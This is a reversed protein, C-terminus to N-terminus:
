IHDNVYRYQTIIYYSRTALRPCGKAPGAFHFPPFIFYFHMIIYIVHLALNCAPGNEIIRWPTHIYVLSPPALYSPTYEAQLYCLVMPQTRAYPTHLSDLDTVKSYM